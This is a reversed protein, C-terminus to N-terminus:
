REKPQRDTDFREEIEGWLNIVEEKLAPVLGADEVKQIMMDMSTHHLDRFEYRGSIRLMDKLYQLNGRVDDIGYRFVIYIPVERFPDDVSSKKIFCTSIIGVKKELEKGSKIKRTPDIWATLARCVRREFDSGKANSRGPKM